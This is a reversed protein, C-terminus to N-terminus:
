CIESRSWGPEAGEHGIPHLRELIQQRENLPPVTKSLLDQVFDNLTRSPALLQSGDPEINNIKPKPALTKANQPVPPINLPANSLISPTYLRSLSDELIHHIGPRHFVEFDYHLIVLAWHALMSSLHSDVLVESPLPYHVPLGFLGVSIRRMIDRGFLIEHEGQLPMIFFHHHLKRSGCDIRVHAARRTVRTTSRDGSTIEMDDIHSIFTHHRECSAPHLYREAAAPFIFSHSAGSYDDEVDDDDDDIDLGKTRIAEPTFTAKFRGPM